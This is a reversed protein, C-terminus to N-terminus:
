QGAEGSPCIDWFSCWKKSCLNSKPNTPMDLGTSLLAHVVKAQETHQWINTPTINCWIRKFNHQSAKTGVRTMVSYTFAINTEAPIDLWSRFFHVYLAAQTMHRGTTKSDAWRKFDKSSKHDDIVVGIGPVFVIVDATGQWPVGLGSTEADYKATVETGAIQVEPGWQHQGHFYELVMGGIIGHVEFEQLSNLPKDTDPDTYGAAEEKFVALGHELYSRITGENPYVHTPNEIRESYYLELAAHYATGMMSELGSRRPHILGYQAKRPCDLFDSITSQRIPFTDTM